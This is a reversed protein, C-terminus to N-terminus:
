KVSASRVHEHRTQKGEVIMMVRVNVRPDYVCVVSLDELEVASLFGEAFVFTFGGVFTSVSTIRQMLGSNAWSM